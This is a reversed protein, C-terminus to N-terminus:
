LLRCHPIECSSLPHATWPAPFVRHLLLLHCLLSHLLVENQKKFDYMKIYELSSDPLLYGLRGTTMVEPSSFLFLVKCLDVTKKM